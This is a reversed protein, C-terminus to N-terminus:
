LKVLQTTAYRLEIDGSGTTISGTITAQGDVDEFSGATIHAVVVAQYKVRMRGSVTLTLDAASGGANIRSTDTELDGKVTIKAPKPSAITITDNYELKLKECTYNGGSGSCDKPLAGPFTYNAARAPLACVMAGIVLLSTTITRLLTM